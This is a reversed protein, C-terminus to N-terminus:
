LKSPDLDSPGFWRPCAFVSCLDLAIIKKGNASPFPGSVKIM